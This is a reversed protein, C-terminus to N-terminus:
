SRRALYVFDRRVQYCRGKVIISKSKGELTMTKGWAHRSDQTEAVSGVDGGAARCGARDEDGGRGRVGDQFARGTGGAADNGRRYGM